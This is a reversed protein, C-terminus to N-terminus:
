CTNALYMKLLFVTDVAHIAEDISNLIANIMENTPITLLQEEGDKGHRFDTLCASSKRRNQM